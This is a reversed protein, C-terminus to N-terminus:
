KKERKKNQEIKLNIDQILPLYKEKFFERWRELYKKGEEITAKYQKCM